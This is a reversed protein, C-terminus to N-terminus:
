LLYPPSTKTRCTRLERLLSPRSMSKLFPVCTWRAFPSMSHTSTRLRSIERSLSCVLVSLLKLRKCERLAHDASSPRFRLSPFSSLEQHLVGFSCEQVIVREVLRKEFGGCRPSVSRFAHGGCCRNPLVKHLLQHLCQDQEASVNTRTCEPMFVRSNSMTTCPSLKMSGPHPSSRSRSECM